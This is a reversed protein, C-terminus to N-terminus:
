ATICIALVISVDAGLLYDYNGLENDVWRSWGQHGPGVIRYVGKLRTLEDWDVGQTFVM